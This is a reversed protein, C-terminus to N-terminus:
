NDIIEAKFFDILLRSFKELGNDIGPIADFGDGIPSSDKGIRQHCIGDEIPQRMM